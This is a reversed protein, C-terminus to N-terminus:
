VSRIRKMWYSLQLKELNWQRRSFSSVTQSLLDHTVDSWKNVVLVPLDDYLDGLPSKRMVPICGLLLAEWTRHCDYGGGFPSIVFAYKSQNRWSTERDVQTPEYFVLHPPLGAKAKMRDKDRQFATQFQFSAYCKVARDALPLAKESIHKLLAEQEVPTAPPGWFSSRRTALTHYDLGIPIVSIKPHTSVANQAFWHILQSNELLSKVQEKSLGEEPLTLDSDGSVLVFSTRIQPLKSQVFDRLAHGNIYVVARPKLQEWNYNYVKTDSTDPNPNHVDCSKLLGRSSVFECAAESVPRKLKAKMNSNLPMVTTKTKIPQTRNPAKLLVAVIFGLLVFTVVCSVIIVVQFAQVM